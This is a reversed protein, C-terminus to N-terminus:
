APTAVAEGAERVVMRTAPTEVKVDLGPVADAEAVVPCLAELGDALSIDILEKVLRKTVMWGVSLPIPAHETGPPPYGTPWRVVPCLPRILPTGHLYCLSAFPNDKVFHNAYLYQYNTCAPSTGNANAGDFQRVAEEADEKREYTM